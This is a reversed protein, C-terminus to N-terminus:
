VARAVVYTWPLAYYFRGADSRARLAALWERASDEPVGFEKSLTVMREVHDLSYSEKSLALDVFLVTETVADSFASRAVLGPILRGMQGESTDQWSQTYNAYGHVMRRTLARDDSALLVGDFDYHGIVATGKPKLIRAIEALLRDRDAICEIVNQCMVSDFSASAFPLPGAIDLQVLTLRGDACPQPHRERTVALSRSSRDAAVVQGSAGVGALLHPVTLGRGCGLDLVREGDKVAALAAVRAHFGERRWHPNLSRM